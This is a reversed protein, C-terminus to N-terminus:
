KRFLFVMVAVVAGCAAIVLLLTAMSVRASSFKVKVNVPESTYPISYAMSGGSSELQDTVDIGNVEMSILKAFRDPTVKLVLNGESYEYFVKGSGETVINVSSTEAADSLPVTALALVVLTALAMMAHTKRM